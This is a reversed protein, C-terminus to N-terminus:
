GSVHNRSRLRTGRDADCDRASADEGGRATLLDRLGVPRDIGVGLCVHTHDERERLPIGIREVAIETRRRPEGFGARLM